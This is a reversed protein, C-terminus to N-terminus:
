DEGFKPNWEREAQRRAVAKESEIVDMIEDAAHELGNAAMLALPNYGRLIHVVKDRVDTRWQNGHRDLHAKIEVLQGNSDKWTMKHGKDRVCRATYPWVGPNHTAPCRTERPAVPVGDSAQLQESM